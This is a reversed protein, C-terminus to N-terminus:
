IVKEALLLSVFIEHADHRSHSDDAKGKDNAADGGFVALIEQMGAPEDHKRDKQVVRQAVNGTIKRAKDEPERSGLVAGDGDFDAHLVGPKGSDKGALMKGSHRRRGDDAGDGADPM